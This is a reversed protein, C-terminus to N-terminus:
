PKRELPLPAVRQTDVSFLTRKKDGTGQNLIKISEGEEKSRVDLLLAIANM